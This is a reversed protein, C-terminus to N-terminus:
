QYTITGAGTANVSLDTPTANKEYTAAPITESSISTAANVTFQVANTTAINTGNTAVCYYYFVGATNSPPTFTATNGGNASGVSTGGSNKKTTNSYWQYTASPDLATTTLQSTGGTCESINDTPQVLFGPSYVKLNGLRITQGSGTTGFKRWIQIANTGTPFTKDINSCAQDYGTTTFTIGQAETCWTAGGDSSYLIINTYLATGTTNATADFTVRTIARTSVIKLYTSTNSGIRFTYGNLCTATGNSVTCTGNYSSTVGNSTTAWDTILTPQAISLDQAKIQNSLFLAVIILFITIPKKM